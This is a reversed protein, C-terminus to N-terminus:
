PKREDLIAKWKTIKKLIFIFTKQKFKKVCIKLGNELMKEVDCM